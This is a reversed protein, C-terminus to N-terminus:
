LCYFLDMLVPARLMPLLLSHSSVIYGSGIISANLVSFSLMEKLVVGCYVLFMYCVYTFGIVQVERTLKM